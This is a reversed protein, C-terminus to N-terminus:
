RLDDSSVYDGRWVRVMPFVIYIFVLALNVLGLFSAVLVEGWLYTILTFGLLVSCLASRICVM